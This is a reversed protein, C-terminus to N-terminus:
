DNVHKIKLYIDLLTDNLNESNLIQNNIQKLAQNLFLTRRDKLNRNSFYTLNLIITNYFSILEFTKPEKTQRIIENYSSFISKNIELKIINTKNKKKFELLKKLEIEIIEKIQKNKDKKDIKIGVRELEKSFYKFFDSKKLDSIANLKKKIERLIVSKERKEERLNSNLEVFRKKDLIITRSKKKPKETKLLRLLITPKKPPM